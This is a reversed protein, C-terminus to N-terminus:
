NLIRSPILLIPKAQKELEEVNSKFSQHYIYYHAGDGYRYTLM